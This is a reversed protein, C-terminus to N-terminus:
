HARCTTKLKEIPYGFNSYYPLYIDVDIGDLKIQYKKLIDNKTITYSSKIKSLTKFDVVIDIDVSKQSETWLYVAWGGILIFNLKEKISQLLNWSKELVLENWYEM